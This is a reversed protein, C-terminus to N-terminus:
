VPISVSISNVRGQYFTDRKDFAVKSDDRRPLIKWYFESSPNPLRLEEFLTSLKRMEKKGMVNLTEHLLSVRQFMFYDLIRVYEDRTMVILTDPYHYVYLEDPVENHRYLNVTVPCEGVTTSDRPICEIGIEKMSLTTEKESLLIEERKMIIGTRENM